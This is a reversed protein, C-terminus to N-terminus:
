KKTNEILNKFLLNMSEEVRHLMEPHWQVGIMFSYNKSEFAEVVGDKSKASVKFEDAVKDVIQHHFSNVMMSDKEFFKHLKTGKEINVTHTLLTPNGVQNHKIYVDKNLSLDQYLTGGHYVNLIQYGRCIGLIPINREKAYKILKYDFKDRELLTQGIKQHPEQGYLTPTVDHGGSLILADINEVHQRIVEDDSNMPIIYPIGGNKIVSECYDENVYSRRYGEFGGASEIIISGSIGIVPRKM